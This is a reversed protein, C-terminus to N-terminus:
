EDQHAVLGAGDPLDCLPDPHGLLGDGVVQSHEAPRAQNALLTLAGPVEELHPRIAQPHHLLEEIAEPWSVQDRQLTGGLGFRAAAPSTPALIASNEVEITMSAGGSTTNACRTVSCPSTAQIPCCASSWGRGPPPKATSM